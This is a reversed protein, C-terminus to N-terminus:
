GVAAWPDLALGPHKVHFLGESASASPPSCRDLRGGRRDPRHHAGSRALPWACMRRRWNPNMSPASRAALRTAPKALLGEIARRTAAPFDAAASIRRWVSPSGLRRRSGPRRGDAFTALRIRGGGPGSRGGGARRRRGGSRTKNLLCLDGPRVLDVRSEGPATARRNRGGGVAAPRRGRGLRARPARGRGRDGRRTQRLGAM